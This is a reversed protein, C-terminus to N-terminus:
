QLISHIFVRRIKGYIQLFEQDHSLSRKITKNLVHYSNCSTKQERAWIEVAM